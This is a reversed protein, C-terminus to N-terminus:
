GALANGLDSQVSPNRPAFLQPYERVFSTRYAQDFPCFDVQMEFLWKIYEYWVDM